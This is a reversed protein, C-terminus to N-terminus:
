VKQEESIELLFEYIEKWNKARYLLYPDKQQQNYPYDLLVTKIGMKVADMAHSLSDEIFVMDEGFLESYAALCTLKKASMPLLIGPIERHFRKRLNQKRMELCETEKDDVAGCSLWSWKMNRHSLMSCFYSEAGRVALLEGFYKSSNFEAIHEVIEQQTLPYKDQLSYMSPATAHVPKVGKINTIWQEFGYFWDLLVGDVDTIVNLM